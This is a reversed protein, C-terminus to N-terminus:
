DLPVAAKPSWGKRAVAEAASTGGQLLTELELTRVARLVMDVTFRDFHEACLIFEPSFLSRIAPDEIRALLTPLDETRTTVRPNYKVSSQPSLVSSELVFVEISRMM